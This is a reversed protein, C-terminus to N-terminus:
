VENQKKSFIKVLSYVAPSLIANVLFEIIFNFGIVLLFLVAYINEYEPSLFTGLLDQFFLLCFISFLGTNIIPVSISSLIVGLKSHNKSLAKYILGSLLGAISTKILCTIITWLPHIPMFVALTSPALIVIVGNILGLIFGSLPGYIISGVVIPILSLTISVPGFQVYNSIFQLVIVVASLISTGVLKKTFLNNNKM